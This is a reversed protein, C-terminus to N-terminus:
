TPEWAPLDTYLGTYQENNYQETLIKTANFGGIKTKKDKRSDIKCKSEEKGLGLKRSKDKDNGLFVYVHSYVFVIQVDIKVAGGECHLQRLDVSVQVYM